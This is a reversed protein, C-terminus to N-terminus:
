LTVQISPLATWYKHEASYYLYATSAPAEYKGAIEAKLDLNIDRTEGPKLDRYYCVLHNGVIEYYDFVGKEQMEKLQWPQATLGAPIGIVAMPSAVGDTHRNKLQASLRVTEGVKVKTSALQTNLAVHCAQDTQPRNTYYEVSVSWPLPNQTGPSRVEINHTGEALYKELGAIEIPERRGKEYSAEGVKKGDVYVEITGAEDTKKAYSAYQTMAKLAMITAQTNGFGGSGQRQSRLFEIAKQLEGNYQGSKVMAQVALSTTEVQLSQGTSCVISFKSGEFSGNGKQAKMMQAMVAKARPDKRNFLANAVLGLQYPDNSSTAKEVARNLEPTIETYGSETLAYVVYASTIDVDTLWTHLFRSSVNFAGKGDRRSMLWDATRNIMKPDVKGSHKRMESFQMLGYASLGEHAPLQGFWEYGHQSTEYSTLRAYGRDLLDQARAKIAPDNVDMEELYNMVLVNPYSSSSTQEFCGYPEGLISEIGKLLDTVVSPFATLKAKISGKVAQAIEFEYIKAENRGAFSLSVPFGLPVLELEKSFADSIGQSQFGIEFQGKGTAEVVEYELFLTQTQGAPISVTAPLAKVVKLGAPANVKFAGTLLTNTNNTLVVPLSMRDTLALEVPAKADMSFPLQTYIKGEGRGVSGDRGIGEAVARFSSIEDSAFFEVTARGSRDLQLSPEWFLTARYDSRVKGNPSEAEHHQDYRPSAFQRARYYTIGGGMEALGIEDDMLDFKDGMKFQFEKKEKEAVRDRDLNKQDFNVMISDAAVMQQNAQRREVENDKLQKQEQQIDREVGKRPAFAVTKSQVPANELDMPAAKEAVVFDLNEAANVPMEVPADEWVGEEEVEMADVVMPAAANGRGKGGGANGFLWNQTQQQPYLYTYQGEGYYTFSYEGTQYGPASVKYTQPESLDVGRMKYLGNADVRVGWDKGELKANAIPQGTYGDYVAGGLIAQEPMYQMYPASGLVETWTFRRWGATMMLLDLAQLAKEEKRDFYFGPEEVKDKIDYELLMKSLINGSKDDAFSLLQDNVVALSLNAALPYGNGDTASVTMKVKERPLYKEKDTTVKVKMEQDRNVFTLREAREIGKGDFLTFVAVGMPFQEAPVWVVNNGPRLMLETGWCMKGRVQGVLNATTAEASLVNLKIEEANNDEVRLVFGKELAQPIEYSASIGEPQTIQATYHEGREPTFEFAGMGQHFSSFESVVKGQGDKVVGKIDAPKGFENLARFAVRGTMAEVMDGGEPFFELKIKNLVIPISRSISETLGNYEIMVNLLGDNSQLEKPLNFQIKAEGDGATKASQRLIEKGQLQAVLQFDHSSLPQNANTELKLTADVVDGPGFAKRDFDLKMKLRPLVVKQVQFEKEFVPAQHGNLQYQTYAKLKYIGGAIEEDLHFDGAARGDKGVLNYTKEVNGKPNILEVRLIDSQGSVKLSQGDAIWAAFWVDDGPKYMPKDMQVYVREEPLSTNFSTLKEHISQLFENWKQPFPYRAGTLTASLGISVAVLGTLLLVKTRTNKM